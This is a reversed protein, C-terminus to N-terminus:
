RPNMQRAHATALIPDPPDRTLARLMMVGRSGKESLAPYRDGGLSSTAQPLEVGDSM